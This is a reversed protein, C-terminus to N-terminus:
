SLSRGFDVGQMKWPTQMSPHFSAAAHGNKRSSIENCQPVQIKDLPGIVFSKGQVFMGITDQTDIPITSQVVNWINGM